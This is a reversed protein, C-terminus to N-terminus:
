GCWCYFGSLNAFAGVGNFVGHGAYSDLLWFRSSPPRLARYWM